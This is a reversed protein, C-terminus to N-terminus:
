KKYNNEKLNFIDNVVDICTEAKHNESSHIENLNKIIINTLKNKIYQDYSLIKNFEHEPLNRELKQLENKSISDIRDKLAYITPNLKQTKLWLVFENVSEEIISLVSDIAKSRNNLTKEVIKELFDMDLLTVNNLESVKKEVNSPVSIDIFIIEDNREKMISELYKKTIICKKSSVACVVIKSHLLYYNLKDIELCNINYKDALKKSKDHTRNIIYIDNFGRAKFNKVAKEGMEGAGIILVPIDSSYKTMIYNISAFIFSIDGKNIITKNRVKKGVELAKNCLRDLVKDIYYNEKCSKFSRRFQGLIENEGLIMSDLGSVVKFLHTIVERGSLHYLLDTYKKEIDNLLSWYKIIQKSIFQMDSKEDPMYYIETRNCTSIILVGKITLKQKLLDCLNNIQENELYFKERIAVSSIKHSIGILNLLNQM